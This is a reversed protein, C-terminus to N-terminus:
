ALGCTRRFYDFFALRQGKTLPLFYSANDSVDDAVVKVPFLRGVKDEALAHPDCRAPVVQMDLEAPPEGPGLPVDVDTPSGPAQRFLVTSGFGAFRVDEREGTPTMTVPVHLVAGRGTGTVTPEGVTVDAAEELTLQACDRDVFDATNGYPDDARTTSRRPDGGDVRYTFTVRADVDTGCRGKPLTIELDTEYTAGIEEEGSWTAPSFRPSTLVAREVTIPAKTNNHVRLFVVRGQRQVRSQDLHVTVGDPLRTAAPEDGGCATLTALLLAAVLLRGLLPM